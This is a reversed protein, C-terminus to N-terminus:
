SARHSLLVILNEIINLKNFIYFMFWKLVMSNHQKLMEDQKM